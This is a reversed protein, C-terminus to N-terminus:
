RRRTLWGNGEMWNFCREMWSDKTTKNIMGFGHGGGQYLHMECKVHNRLLATYFVVSNLPSLKDDSAQVLMTPPTAPTVLKDNSYALRLAADANKGLLKDPQNAEGRRHNVATDYTTMPYVLVMFAPRLSLKGPNDILVDNYHTGLTSALHGGASFGMIGIKSTDINWEKARTRVIVMAREADQLPGIATQPMWREDPIRYKLVFAAVGRKLFEEAVDTGEHKYANVYYGGGPCIIVAAGTATNGPPLFLTLTPFSIDRIIVNGGDDRTTVELNDFHRSNPIEGDYLPIVQQARLPCSLAFVWVLLLLPIKVHITM